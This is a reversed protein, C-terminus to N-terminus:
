EYLLIRSFNVDLSFRGNARKKGFLGCIYATFINKFYRLLM